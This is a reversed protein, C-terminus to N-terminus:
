PTRIFEEYISPVDDSKWEFISEYLFIFFFSNLLLFFYYICNFFDYNMAIARYSSGSRYFLSSRCSMIDFLYLEFYCVCRSYLLWQCLLTIRWRACIVKNNNCKNKCLGYLLRAGAVFFISFRNGGSLVEILSTAVNYIPKPWLGLGCVVVVVFHGIWKWNLNCHWLTTSVCNRKERARAVCALLWLFVLWILSMTILKRATQEHEHECGM